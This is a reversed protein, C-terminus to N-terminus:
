FPNDVQEEAVSVKDKGDTGKPEDKVKTTKPKKSKKVTTLLYDLDSHLAEIDAETLNHTGDYNKEVVSCIYRMLVNDSVKELGHVEKLVDTVRDVLKQLKYRFGRLQEHISGKYAADGLGFYSFIKKMSDTQAGKLTDGLSNNLFQCGGFSEKQALITKESDSITIQMRICVSEKEKKTGKYETIVSDRLYIIEKGDMDHGMPLLTQEWTCGYNNLVSNLRDILYAINYGQAKDGFDKTQVADIPIPASIEKYITDWLPNIKQTAM